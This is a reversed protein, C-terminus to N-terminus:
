LSLGVDRSPEPVARLRAHLPTALVRHRAVSADLQALLTAATTEANTQPHEVTNLYATIRCIATSSDGVSRHRGASWPLNETLAGRVLRGVVDRAAM